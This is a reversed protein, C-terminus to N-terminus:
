PQVRQVRDIRLKVSPTARIAAAETYFRQADARNGKARQLDGELSLGQGRLAPIDRM